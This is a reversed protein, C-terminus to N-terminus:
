FLYAISVFCKLLLDSNIDNNGLVANTSGGNKDYQYFYRYDVSSFLHFEINEGYIKKRYELTLNPNFFAIGRGNKLLDSIRYNDALKVEGLGIKFSVGMSLANNIPYSISELVFGYSTIKSYFILEPSIESGSITATYPKQYESYFLGAFFNNELEYELAYDHFSTEYYLLNGKRINQIDQGSYPVYAINTKPNLKSIYIETEYRFTIPTYVQLMGLFRMYSEKDKNGYLRIVEEDAYSFDDGTLSTEYRLKPVAFFNNVKRLTKTKFEIWLLDIGSTKVEAKGIDQPLWYSYAAGIEISFEKDSDEMSVDRQKIFKQYDSDKVSQDDDSWGNNSFFLLVIALLVKKM